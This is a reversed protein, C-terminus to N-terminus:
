GPLFLTFQCFIYTQFRPDKDVHEVELYTEKNLKTSTNTGGGMLQRVTSDTQPIKPVPGTEANNSIM